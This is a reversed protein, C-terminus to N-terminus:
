RAAMHPWTLCRRTSAVPPSRRAVDHRLQCNCNSGSCSAIMAAAARSAGPLRVLWEGGRRERICRTVSYSVYCITASTCVTFLPEKGGQRTLSARTCLMGCQLQRARRGNAVPKAATGSASSALPAPLHVAHRDCRRGTMLCGVGPM